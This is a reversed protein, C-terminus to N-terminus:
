VVTSYAILLHDGEVENYSVSNIFIQRGGSAWKGRQRTILDTYSGYLGFEGSFFLVFCSNRVMQEEEGSHGGEMVARVVGARNGGVHKRSPSWYVCCLLLCGDCSHKFIINHTKNEASKMVMKLNFENSRFGAPETKHRTYRLKNTCGLHPSTIYIIHFWLLHWLKATPCNNIKM